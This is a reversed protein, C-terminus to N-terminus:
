RKDQHRRRASIRNLRRTLRGNGLDCHLFAFRDLFPFLEKDLARVFDAAPVRLLAGQALIERALFLSQLLKISGILRLELDFFRLDLLGPAFDSKTLIVCSGAAVENM